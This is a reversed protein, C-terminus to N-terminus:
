IAQWGDTVEALRSSSRTVTNLQTVNAARRGTDDYIFDVPVGGVTRHTVHDDEDYQYTQTRDHKDSRNGNPDHAVAGSQAGGAVGSLQHPHAADVYVLAVGDKMTLKGRHGSYGASNVVYGTADTLRGVKCVGNPGGFPPALPLLAGKQGGM